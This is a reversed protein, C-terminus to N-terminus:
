GFRSSRNIGSRIFWEAKFGKFNVQFFRCLEGMCPKLVNSCREKEMKRGRVLEARSNKRCKLFGHSAEAHLALMVDRSLQDAM